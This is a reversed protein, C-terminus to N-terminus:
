FLTKKNTQEVVKPVKISHQNTPKNPQTDFSEVVLHLRCFPYNQTDDNSIHMLKDAMSKIKDKPGQEIM